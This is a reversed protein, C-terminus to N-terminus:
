TTSGLGLHKRINRIFARLGGGPLTVNTQPRSPAEAVSEQIVLVDCTALANLTRAAEEPSVQARATIESITAAKSSLTAAIRIQSAPPRILGFNPWRAIRFREDGKIWPALGDSAYFGAFWALEVGSRVFSGAAPPAGRRLGLRTLDIQGRRLAQAISPDAFYGSADTKIWLLATDGDRGVLWGESNQVERLTRLSEVFAWPDGSSGNVKEAEHTERLSIGSRIEADLRDLLGLVEMARFPYVLVREESSVDADSETTIVVMLKGGAKWDAIQENTDAHSVVVVDATEPPVITWECRTTGKFAWLVSDMLQIAQAAKAGAEPAPKVLAIRHEAREVGTQSSDSV